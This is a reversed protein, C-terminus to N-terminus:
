VTFNADAKGAVKDQGDLPGYFLFDVHNPAVSEPFPYAVEARVQTGKAASEVLIGYDISRTTSLTFHPLYFGFSTCASESDAPARSRTQPDFCLVGPRTFDAAVSKQFTIKPEPTGQPYQYHVGLATSWGQVESTEPVARLTLYEPLQIGFSQLLVSDSYTGDVNSVDVPVWPAQGPHAAPAGGYFEAWAHFGNVNGAVYGSVLRAPVGAARLLSVYTAALDRCIGGKVGNGSGDMVLGDCDPAKGSADTCDRGASDEMDLLVQHPTLLHDNDLRSTDYHLNRMMYKLLALAREASTMGPTVTAAVVRQVEADAPTVGYGAGLDHGGTAASAQAVTMYSAPDTIDWLILDNSYRAVVGFTYKGAPLDVASGVRVQVTANAYNGAEDRASVLYASVGDALNNLDVPLSTAILSNDRLDMVRTSAAGSITVGVGLRYHRGSDANALAQLGTITPPTTDVRVGSYSNCRNGHVSYSVDWTGDPMVLTAKQQGDQQVFRGDSATAEIHVPEDETVEVRFRNDTTLANDSIPTIAVHYSCQPGFGFCGSLAPAVLLM